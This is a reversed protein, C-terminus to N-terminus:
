SFGTNYSSNRGNYLRRRKSPLSQSRRLRAKDLQNRAEKARNEAQNVQDRANIEEKKAAVAKKRVDRKAKTDKLFPAFVVTAALVALLGLVGIAVYNMITRFQSHDTSRNYYNVSLAAFIGAILLFTYAIM